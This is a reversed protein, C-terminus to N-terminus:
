EELSRRSGRRRQIRRRDPFNIPQQSMRREYSRRDTRKNSRRNKIRAANLMMYSFVTFFFSIQLLSVAILWLHSLVMALANMGVFLSISCIIWLTQKPTYGLSLLRHHLHDRGVYDIWERLSSVDGRDIRSITIYVMDFILVSFVLVPASYAIWIGAESWDGMVAIGAMLWGLYTSGTDGMFTRAPRSFRANDPMFGISAGMVSLCLLFMFFQGTVLAIAAMLACIITALMSALGNSGDLFNYANTIGMMWLITMFIGLEHAFAIDDPLTISVGYYLMIGIAAFQGVIKISASLEFLDDLLSLAAVLLASLCVAKLGVAYNFNFFLTINIALLIALGGLRPTPQKHIRRGGPEDLIHFRHALHISLPVLAYCLLMSGFFLRLSQGLMTDLATWPILLGVAMCAAILRTSPRDILLM